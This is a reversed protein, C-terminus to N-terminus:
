VMQNKSYRIPDSFRILKKALRQSAELHLQWSDNKEIIPADGDFWKMRAEWNLFIKGESRIDILQFTMKITKSCVINDSFLIQFTWLHFIDHLNTKYFSRVLQWLLNIVPM